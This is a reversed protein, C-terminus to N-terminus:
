LRRWATEAGGKESNGVTAMVHPAPAPAAPPGVPAAEAAAASAAGVSVLWGSGNHARRSDSPETSM